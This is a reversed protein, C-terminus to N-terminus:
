NYPYKSQKSVQLWLNSVRDLLTELKKVDLSEAANSNSRRSEEIKLIEWMGEEFTEITEMLVRMTLLHSERVLKMELATFGLGSDEGKWGEGWIEVNMPM